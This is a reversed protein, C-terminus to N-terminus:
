PGCQPDRSGKKSVGLVWTADAFRIKAGGGDKILVTPPPAVRCVEQPAWPSVPRAIFILWLPEARGAQVARDPPVVLPGQDAVLDRVRVATAADYLLGGPCMQRCFSHGAYTVKLDETSAPELSTVQVPADGPNDLQLSVVVPGGVSPVTVRDGFRLASAQDVGPPSTLGGTSVLSWALVALAVGTAAWWPRGLRRLIAIGRALPRRREM